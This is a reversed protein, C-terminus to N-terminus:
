ADVAFHGAGEADHLVREARVGFLEDARPELVVLALEVEASVVFGIEVPELVKDLFGALVSDDHFQHQEARDVVVLEPVDIGHVGLVVDVARALDAPLFDVPELVFDQGFQLDVENALEGLGQLIEVVDIELDAVLRVEGSGSRSHVSWM